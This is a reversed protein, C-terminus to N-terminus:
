LFIGAESPTCIHAVFYNTGLMQYFQQAKNDLVFTPVTKDVRVEVSLLDLTRIAISEHAKLALFWHTPQGRNLPTPSHDKQSATTSPGACRVSTHPTQRNPSAFRGLTGSPLGPREGALWRFRYLQEQALIKLNVINKTM